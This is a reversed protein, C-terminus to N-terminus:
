SILFLSFQLKEVCVVLRGAGHTLRGAGHIPQTLCLLTVVTRGKDDHEKNGLHQPCDKGEKLKVQWIINSEACGTDYYNNGFPCPKMPVFM